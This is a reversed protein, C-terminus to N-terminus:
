YARRLNHKGIFVRRRELLDPETDELAKYYNPKAYHTGDVTFGNLTHGIRQHRVQLRVGRHAAGLDAVSLATGDRAGQRSQSVRPLVGVRKGCACRGAGM